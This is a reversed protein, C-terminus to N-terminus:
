HSNLLPECSSYFPTCGFIHVSLHSIRMRVFAKCFYMVWVCMVLGFGFALVECVQVQLLQLQKRTVGLTTVGSVATETIATIHESISSNVSTLDGRAQQIEAILEARVADICARFTAASALRGRCM